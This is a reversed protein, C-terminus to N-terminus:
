RGSPFSFKTLIARLSSINWISPRVTASKQFNQRVRDPIIQGLADGLTNFRVLWDEAATVGGSSLKQLAEALTDKLPRNIAVKETVARCSKIRGFQVPLFKAAAVAPAEAAIHGIDINRARPHLGLIEVLFEGLDFQALELVIERFHFLGDRISFSRERWNSSDM